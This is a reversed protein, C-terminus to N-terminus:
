AEILISLEDVEDPTLNNAREEESMHARRYGNAAAQFQWLSSADVAAPAMGM